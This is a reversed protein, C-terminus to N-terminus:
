KNRITMKLGNLIVMMKKPKKVKEKKTLAKPVKIRKSRQTVPALDAQSVLPKPARENRMIQSLDFTLKTPSNFKYIHGSSKFAAQNLLNGINKQVCHLVTYINKSRETLHKPPKRYKRMDEKFHPFLGVDLPQTIHSSHPPIEFTDIKADDLLKRIKADSYCSLGDQIILARTDKNLGLHKKKEEFYPIVVDKVYLEHCDATTFGTTTSVIFGNEGNPFGYETLDDDITAQNIIILPRISDGNPFIVPMLTIYGVPEDVKYYVNGPSKGDKGAVIVSKKSAKIKQSGTQDWNCTLRADYNKL